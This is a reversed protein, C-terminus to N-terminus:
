DRDALTVVAFYEHQRVVLDTDRGADDAAARGPETYQQGTPWATASWRLDFYPVVVADALGSTLVQEALDSFDESEQGVLMKRVPEPWGRRAEELAKDGGINYTRVGSRPGLYNALYDNGGAANPAFVVTM